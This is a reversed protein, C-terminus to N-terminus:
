TAAGSRGSIIEELSAVSREYGQPTVSGTFLSYRLWIRYTNLVDSLCYNSIDEIRGADFYQEVQDGALGEPKGPFGLIKSLEDLSVKARADFSSLVDCLDVADDTYRNFYPRRFLGPASVSHKMARYRLVPLDFSSGNFTVLRPSLEELRTVFSQILDAETRTGVHPAGVSKAQWGDEIKTAILGGICIIKHYPLKPFADGMAARAEHTPVGVLSKAKAFAEIDPVTELDWVVIHESM